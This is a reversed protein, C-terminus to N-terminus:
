ELSDIEDDLAQLRSKEKQIKESLRLSKEIDLGSSGAAKRYYDLQKKLLARREKKVDVPEESTKEEILLQLYQILFECEQKESDTLQAHSSANKLQDHQATLTEQSAGEVQDLLENCLNQMEKKKQENVNKKAKEEDQRRNDEIDLRDQFPKRAFTLEKRIQRIFDRDLKATKILQEIEDLRKRGDELSIEKAENGFERIKEQIPDLAKQSQEMQASRAKKQEKELVKLKEWAESLVTRSHSFAFTNLTLIKAVTQLAKIEERLPFLSAQSNLQTKFNETIFTDVDGIFKQSIDGILQKRRPFVHDGCSSLRQFFQNKQRIRMLTKTLEKRLANIRSAYTNLLNLERQTSSYYSISNRIAKCEPFVIIPIQKVSLEVNELEKELAHIAIEIQETAFASQEELIQKLNRAQVTLENYRTWYLNRASLSLNEKFLPTCIKRSEWFNKFHPTGEQALSSSMFDIVKQLKTEIDACSELEKKLKELAESSPSSKTAKDGEVETAAEAAIPDLNNETEDLDLSMSETM